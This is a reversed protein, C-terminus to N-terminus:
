GGSFLAMVKDIWVMVTDINMIVLYCLGGVVILALLRGLCGAFIWKIM